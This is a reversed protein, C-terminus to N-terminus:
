RCEAQAEQWASQIAAFYEELATRTVEQVASQMDQLSKLYASQASAVQEPSASQVATVLDHYEQANFSREDQTRRGAAEFYTLVAAQQREALASSLQSLRTMYRALAADFPERVHESPMPVTAAAMAAGFVPNGRNM